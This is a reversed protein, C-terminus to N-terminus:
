KSLSPSAVDTCNGGGPYCGMRLARSSLTWVAFTGSLHSCTVCVRPSSLGSFRDRKQKPPNSSAPSSSCGIIGSGSSGDPSPQNGKSCLLFCQITLQVQQKKAHNISNRTWVAGLQLLILTWFCKGDLRRNARVSCLLWDNWLTPKELPVSLFLTKNTIQAWRLM